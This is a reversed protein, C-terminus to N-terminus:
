DPLEHQHQRAEVEVLRQARQGDLAAAVLGAFLPHAHDPRSKFEPHAQTAVYYPHTERPLEHIVWNATNQADGGAEVAALIAAPGPENVGPPPMYLLDFREVQNLAFLGTGAVASGIIDYDSLSGGDSGAQAHDGFLEGVGKCGLEPEGELTLPVAEGEVVRNALQRPSDGEHIHLDERHGDEDLALDDDVDGEVEEADTAGAEVVDAFSGVPPHDVVVFCSGM